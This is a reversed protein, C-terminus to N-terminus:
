DNMFYNNCGDTAAECVAGKEKEFDEMNNYIRYDANVSTLTLITALVFLLINKTKM